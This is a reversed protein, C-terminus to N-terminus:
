QLTTMGNSSRTLQTPNRLCGERLTSAVCEQTGEGWPGLEQHTGQWETSGTKHQQFSTLFCATRTAVFLTKLALCVATKPRKVQHSSIRAAAQLLSSGGKAALNRHSGERAPGVDM